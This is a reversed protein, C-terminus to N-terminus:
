NGYATIKLILANTMLAQTVYTHYHSVHANNMSPVTVNLERFYQLKESSFSYTKGNKSRGVIKM